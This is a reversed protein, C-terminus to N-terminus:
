YATFPYERSFERFQSASQSGWDGKSAARDDMAVYWLATLCYLLSGVTAFVGSLNRVRSFTPGKGWHCLLFLTTLTITVVLLVSGMPGALRGTGYPNALEQLWSGVVTDMRQNSEADANLM